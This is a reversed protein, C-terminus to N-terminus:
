LMVNERFRVDDFLSMQRYGMNRVEAPLKEKTELLNRAIYDEEMRTPYMMKGSCTIFYLARKLVVGMKKLDEFKLVGLRRAKVIRSASKYGIGPVRLLMRYEARNIEVPFYNLNKLAWNCKPDFLVNFNPDEESLLEESQFHYYRLLWDAQYLRHERLLPPGEGTRAPLASDENVHVFASYFM